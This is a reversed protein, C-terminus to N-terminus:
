GDLWGVVWGSQWETDLQGGVGDRVTTGYAAAAGGNPGASYYM